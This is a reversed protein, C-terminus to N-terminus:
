VETRREIRENRSQAGLISANKGLLVPVLLVNEALYVSAFGTLMIVSPWLNLYAPIGLAVAAFGLRALFSGSGIMMGIPTSSGTLLSVTFATSVFSLIGVFAGYLLAVSHGGGYVLLMILSILASLVAVFVAYVLALRWHPSL